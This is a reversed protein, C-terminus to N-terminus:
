ADVIDKSAIADTISLASDVFSLAAQLRAAVYTTIGLQRAKLIINRKKWTRSIQRQSENLELPDLLGAKDRIRLLVDILWDCV